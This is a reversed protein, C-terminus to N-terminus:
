PLKQYYKLAHNPLLEPHFLHILDALVWHPKCVASEWYDNGGFENIRKNNNFVLSSKVSSFAQFREDFEILEDISAKAGPNLWFTAMIGKEFATEIDLPISAEEQYEQWVYAANADKFYQAQFSNGGSVYWTGKWPLSIMVTPKNNAKSAIRKLSDYQQQVEQSKAQAIQICEHGYFAAFAVLWKAKEVPNTEMFEAINIAKIGQRRLSEVAKLDAADISFTFLIDAQSEIMKEANLTQKGFEGVKQEKLRFRFTSDYYLTTNTAGIISEQKGLENIFGLHTTSNIVAKQIPIKIFHTFEGEINTPKEKQYLYFRETNKAGKFPSKVELVYDHKNLQYLKFHKTSDFIQSTSTNLDQSKPSQCAIFFSSFLFLLVSTRIM